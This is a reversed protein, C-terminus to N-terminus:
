LASSAIEMGPNPKPSGMALDRTSAIFPIIEMSLTTLWPLMMLMDRGAAQDLYDVSITLWRRTGGSLFHLCRRPHPPCGLFAAKVYIIAYFIIFKKPIRIKVRQILSIVTLACGDDLKAICVM